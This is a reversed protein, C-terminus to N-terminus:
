TAERIVPPTLINGKGFALSHCIWRYVIRGVPFLPSYALGTNGLRPKGLIVNLNRSFDHSSYIGTLMKFYWSLIGYVGGVIFFPTDQRSYLLLHIQNGTILKKQGTYMKM